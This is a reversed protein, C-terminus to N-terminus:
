IAFASKIVGPFLNRFYDFFNFTSGGPNTEQLFPAILKASGSVPGSETQCTLTIETATEVCVGSATGSTSTFEYNEWVTGITGPSATGACSSPDDIGTLEWGVDYCSGGLEPNLEPDLTIGDVNVTVSDTGTGSDNSCSLTYTSSPKTPVVSESGSVENKSGSWSGSATCSNADGGVTWSLEASDGEFVSSEDSTLDVTPPAEITITTRDEAVQGGREAIVKATYEGPLTYTCVNTATYPDQNTNNEQDAYPTTINTGSDTRHCYLTYDIPGAATGSVDATFSSTLPAGGSDPNASLNVSLSGPVVRITVTDSVSGCTTRYTTQTNLVGTDKTGNKASWPGAAGDGAIRQTTCSDANESTWNIQAESGQIIDVPGDSWNTSGDAPRAKIDVTVVDPPPPPPTVPRSTRCTQWSIALNEVCLTGATCSKYDFKAKCGQPDFPDNNLSCTRTMLTPKITSCRTFREPGFEIEECTRVPAAWTTAGSCDQAYTTQIIIFSAGLGLTVLALVFFKSFYRILFKDAHM